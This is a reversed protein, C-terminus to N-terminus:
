GALTSPDVPDARSRTDQRGSLSGIDLQLM